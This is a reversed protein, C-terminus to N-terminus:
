GFLALLVLAPGTIAWAVLVATAVVRDRQGTVWSLAQERDGRVIGPTAAADIQAPATRYAAAGPVLEAGVLVVPGVRPEADAFGHWAAGETRVRVIEGDARRLSAVGDEAASLTGECLAAAALRRRLRGAGLAVVAIAALVLGTWGIHFAPWARAALREGFSLRIPRDDRGLVAIANGAYLCTDQGVVLTRQGGPTRAMWARGVPVLDDSLHQVATGADPRDWAVVFGSTRGRALAAWSARGAGPLRWTAEERLDRGVRVVRWGDPQRELFALGATLELPATSGLDVERRAITLGARSTALLHTLDDATYTECWDLTQDPLAIAGFSSSPGCDTGARGLRGHVEDPDALAPLPRSPDSWPSCHASVDFDTRTLLPPNRPAAVLDGAANAWLTVLAIAAATVVLRAPWGHPRAPFPDQDIPQGGDVLKHLASVAGFWPSFIAPVALLLGIVFLPEAEPTSMAISCLVLGPVGCWLTVAIHRRWAARGDAGELEGTMPVALGYLLRLLAVLVAAVIWALAIRAPASQTEIAFPSLFTLLGGWFIPLFAVGWLFARGENGRPRLVAALTTPAGIRGLLMDRLLWRYALGAALGMSALSAFIALALTRARLM